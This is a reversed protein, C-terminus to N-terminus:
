CASPILSARPSVSRSRCHRHDIMISAGSVSLATGWAGLRARAAGQAFGWWVAIPQWGYDSRWAGPFSSRILCPSLLYFLLPRSPDHLDFRRERERPSQHLSAHLSVRGYAVQSNESLVPLRRFPRPILSVVMDVYSPACHFRVGRVQGQSRPRSACPRVAPQQRCRVRLPRVFDSGPFCVLPAGHFPRLARTLAVARTDPPVVSIRTCLGEVQSRM